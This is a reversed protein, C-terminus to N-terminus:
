KKLHIKYTLSPLIFFIGCVPLLLHLSINHHETIQLFKNRAASWGKQFASSILCLLSHVRALHNAWSELLPIRWQPTVSTQRPLQSRQGACDYRGWVPQVCILLVPPGREQSPSRGPRNLKAQVIHAVLLFHLHQKWNNVTCVFYALTANFCWSGNEPAQNLRM